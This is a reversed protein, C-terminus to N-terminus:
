LPNDLVLLIEKETHDRDRFQSKAHLSQRAAFVPSLQVCPHFQHDLPEAYTNQRNVASDSFCPSNYHGVALGRPPPHTRHVTQQSRGREDPIQRQHRPVDTVECSKVPFNETRPLVGLLSSLRTRNSSPHHLLLLFFCLRFCLRIRPRKETRRERSQCRV